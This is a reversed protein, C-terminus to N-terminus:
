VPRWGMQGKTSTAPRQQSEVSSYAPARATPEVGAMRDGDINCFRPRAPPPVFSRGAAISGFAVM